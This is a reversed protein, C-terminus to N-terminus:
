SGLPPQGVLGAIERLSEATYRKQRAKERADAAAQSLQTLGQPGGPTPSGHKLAALEETVEGRRGDANTFAEEAATFAGRAQEERNRAAEIKGPFDRAMSIAQDLQPQLTAMEVAAKAASLLRDARIVADEAGAKRGEEEALRQRASKIADRAEAVTAEKDTLPPHYDGGIGLHLDRDEVWSPGAEPMRERLRRLLEGIPGADEPGVKEMGTAPGDCTIVPVGPFRDLIERLHLAKDRSIVIARDYPSLRAEWVRRDVGPLAVLDLISVADFGATRLAM